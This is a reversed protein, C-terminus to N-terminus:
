YIAITEKECLWRMREQEQVFLSSDLKEAEIECESSDAEAQLYCLGGSLSATLGASTRVPGAEYGSFGAM